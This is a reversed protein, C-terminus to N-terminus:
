IKFKKRVETEISEMIAGHDYGKLHVCGHIFLFAFFNDYSRDFKRAEKKTESPCIYIDGENKGLPFSLIDTPVTKNRYITNLKKIHAADTIIVNLVYKKGLVADKIAQFAVTPIAEKTENILTCTSM